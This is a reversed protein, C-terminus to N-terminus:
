QTVAGTPPAPSEPQVDPILTIETRRNKARGAATKANSLPITGGYGHIEIKATPIGAAVLKDAIAQAREETLTLLVAADGKDDTHSEIIIKYDPNNLLIQTLRDIKANATASFSSVQLGSWYNEALTVTAGRATQRTTGYPKLNNLLYPINANLRMVKENLLRQRDEEQRQKEQEAQQKVVVQKEGEIRALQVKADESEQRVQSLEDRLRQIEARLDAIQKTYNENDREALERNRTENQLEAKLSTIEREANETKNEAKEIEADARTKEDRKERAAKRVGAVEEARVGAATAQRALTDVEADDRKDRWADEAQKLAQRAYDYEVGADRAAGAFKALNLAQRAGLLSVPTKIYDTEAIEPVREDRLYDSSNGFYQISLSSNVGSPPLNELIVAKSPVSVLFHPEATVILAFTQFPTTVEIKTNFLWTGTRRKIEGLNDVKGEPTIAWLVFTTYAGGLEYPRPVNDLTLSVRTGTKNMRKVKASGSLRPFRTTGRFAVVIEDGLPYTIAVTKRPADTQGFVAFSVASILLVASLIKIIISNKM